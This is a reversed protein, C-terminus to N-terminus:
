IYNTRQKTSRFPLHIWLNDWQKKIRKHIISKIYHYNKDLGIKENSIAGEKALYDAMENGTNDNHGKIWSFNLTIKHEKIFGHIYELVEVTNKGVLKTKNLTHLVAQNDIYIGVATATGKGEQRCNSLDMLAYKIANLEAEYVSSYYPLNRSGESIVQDQTTIVWGLGVKRDIKSGDTYIRIEENLLKGTMFVNLKNLNLKTVREIPQSEQDLQKKWSFLHGRRQNIGIGDWGHNKISHYIRVITNLAKQKLHLHLPIVNCLRELARTPTSPLCSTTNVLALRQIKDLEKILWAPPQGAPFWVHCAYDVCPRIISTYIWLAKNPTLGWKKDVLKRAVILDKKAKKIRSMIHQKWTLKSDITVGLYKFSTVIPVQCGGLTLPKINPIKKNSIIMCFSKQPSITLGREQFWDEFENLCMQMLSMLTNLDLGMVASILDDAFKIIKSKKAARIFILGWIVIIWLDPGNLGGQTTGMRPRFSITHDGETITVKRNQSLYNIWAIIESSADFEILADKIIHFPVNDFAGEIDLSIIVANQNLYKAKEIIHVLESIATDTSYKTNFAHQNPIGESLVTQKIEWNILREGLKLLTPSLGIPRYTKPNSKDPKGAKKIFITKINLLPEPIYEACLTSVYIEVLAKKYTVPLNKLVENKIGDPGPAKQTPLESIAIDLRDENIYKSIRERNSYDIPEKSGKNTEFVMTSDRFHAKRLNNLSEIISKSAQGSM